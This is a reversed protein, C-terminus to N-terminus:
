VRVALITPNYFKEEHRFLVTEQGVQVGNDGTGFKILRIPPEAAALTQKAEESADPCDGLKAKKQALQMAFALCTPM